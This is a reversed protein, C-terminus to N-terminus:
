RKEHAEEESFRALHERGGRYDFEILYTVQRPTTEHGNIQTHLIGTARVSQADEDADYTQASFYTSGNMKKLREAERDMRMSFGASSEPAVLPLLAKKKWSVSEPTVDLVLGCVFEAMMQLYDASVRDHSVWFERSVTPPTVVTRQMGLTRLVVLGLVLVAVALVLSLIGLRAARLRLERMDRTLQDPNM